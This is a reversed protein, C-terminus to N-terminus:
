RHGQAGQRAVQRFDRIIQQQPVSGGERLWEHEARWGTLMKDLM